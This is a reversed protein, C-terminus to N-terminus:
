FSSAPFSFGNLPPIFDSTGIIYSATITAAPQLIATNFNVGFQFSNARLDSSVSGDSVVMIDFELTNASPQSCNDLSITLHNTQAIGKASLLTICVIILGLYYYNKKM